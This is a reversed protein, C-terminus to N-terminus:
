LHISQLPELLFLYLDNPKKQPNDVLNLFLPINFSNKMLM